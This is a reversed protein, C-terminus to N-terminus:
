GLQSLLAIVDDVGQLRCRAKTPGEGVKITFAKGDDLADFLDEDTRDDGIALVFDYEGIDFVRSLVQGKDSGSPKVEVVKNGDLVVAKVDLLYSKLQGLLLRSADFGAREEMNRYHWVIGLPKEEMFSGEHSEAFRNIMTKVDEKWAPLKGRQSKWVTEKIYAGHEAILDIPLDGFWQDMTMHDRGSVIAVKTKSDEALRSLLDKIAKDPKAMEPKPFFRVLTGDYDLLILRREAKSFESLLNRMQEANICELPPGQENSEILSDWFSKIWHFIDHKRLYTQMRRMRQTQEEPTMQLALNIQEAMQKTDLPNFLIAERLEEAAGTLESLMLVGLQDKRTAVYEKAVLNMGDRVPSILALNAISFFGTLKAFSVAKHHYVIPTYDYNGHLRNIRNINLEIMQRREWYKQIEERSPVIVLVFVVKGKWEPHQELFLDFAQLRYMVGKTYDLRDVSFIIKRDRFERRLEERCKTTAPDDYSDHFKGFDISIPFVGVKCSHGNEEFRYAAHSKGLVKQVCEMFSSAYGWTQFGILSAGMVGQLLMAKVESPLLRFVEFNPFPIHLFFGIKADPQQKRVLDPLLMFHYDHIWILDGDQYHSILMQAMEENAQKYADLFEDKFEVFSPFYHFLPWLVSNTFGKYFSAHLSSPLFIPVLEFDSHIEDKLSEWKNNSIDAVGLWLDKSDGASGAKILATALGGASPKPVTKGVTTEFSIPLRYSVHIKRMRPRTDGFIRLSAVWAQKPADEGIM